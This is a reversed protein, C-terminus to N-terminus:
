QEEAETPKKRAPRFRMAPDSTILNELNVQPYSKQFTQNLVQLLENAIVGNGTAGPYLGNLSYFGGLYKGTLNEAGVIRGSDRVSRIVTHLNFLTVGRESALSGIASNLALVRDRIVQASQASIVSGAPLASTKDAIIQRGITMLAPLKILDDSRLQYLGALTGSPAGVYATADNLSVFYATDFPDPITAIVVSAYTRRLNDLIGALNSRYQAVDPLLAPNNNTAAEVVSDYGIAILIMTPMMARAYEVQSWKPTRTGLILAPYGLVFNILTQKTDAPQVLPPIPKRTLAEEIRLGPVSLNFVFLTPPFQSRVTTQNLSPARVPLAPFGSVNGLGPAEILPLPFATRIQRAVQAPFSNQQYVEHLAFDAMGAALGDGLVVFTTTNLSKVQAFSQIAALFIALSFFIHRIM